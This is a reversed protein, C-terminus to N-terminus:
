LIYFIIGIKMATIGLPEGNLQASNKFIPNLGYYFHFNWDGYGVGITLGYQLDEFDRVNSLNENGFDSRLKTSNYLLYSFKFGPYIRWFRNVTPTSTRWRFEFPIDILYTTFKNKSVFINDPILNYEYGNEGQTIAINQLYSNSSIGVGLALAVNRRKNIPMDRLFGIHFGTSFGNQSIGPNMKILANYTVSAYIQDERYLTDVIRKQENNQQAFCLALPLFYLGILLSRM